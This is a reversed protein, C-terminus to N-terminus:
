LNDRQVIQAAEQNGEAAKRKLEDIDEPTRPWILKEYDYDEPKDIFFDRLQQRYVVWRNIEAESANEDILTSLVKDSHILRNNRVFKAFEKTSQKTPM